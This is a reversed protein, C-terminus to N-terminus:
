QQTPKKGSEKGALSAASGPESFCLRKMMMSSFTKSVYPGCSSCTHMMLLGKWGKEQFLEVDKDQLV